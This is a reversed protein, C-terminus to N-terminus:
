QSLDVYGFVNFGFSCISHSHQVANKIVNSVDNM